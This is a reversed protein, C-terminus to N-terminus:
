REGKWFALTERLDNEDQFLSLAKATEVAFDVYAEARATIVAGDRVLKEPCSHTSALEALVGASELIDAVACIGCLLAGRKRLRRLLTLLEAGAARHGFDATFGGPVIFSRIDEEAIDSLAGDPLLRIGEASTLAGGDASLLVASCGACRMFYRLVTIEYLCCQEYVFFVDKM